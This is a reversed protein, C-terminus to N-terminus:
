IVSGDELDYGGFLSYEKDKVSYVIVYRSNQAHEPNHFKSMWLKLNMNKPDSEIRYKNCWRHNIVKVEVEHNNPSIIDNFNKPNPAFSHKQILYQEAAHGIMTDYIIKDLSRNNRAYRGHYIDTAENRVSAQLKLIDLDDMSFSSPLQHLEEKFTM